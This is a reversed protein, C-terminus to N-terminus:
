PPDFALDGDLNIIFEWDSSKLSHFGDLFAQVAGVDADRCGRNVKHLPQIWSYLGAYRDLIKGTGDTSGDDVIIWEKPKITQQIVSKITGEIHQAEDRVPTIVVYCTERLQNSATM